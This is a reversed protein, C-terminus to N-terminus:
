HSSSVSIVDNSIGTFSKLDRRRNNWFDWGLCAQSSHKMEVLVAIPHCLVRDVVEIGVRSLHLYTLLHSGTADLSDTHASRIDPVNGYAAAATWLLPEASDLARNIKCYELHLQFFISIDLLSDYNWHSSAPTLRTPTRQAETRGM